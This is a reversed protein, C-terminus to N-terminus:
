EGSALLDEQRLVGALEEYVADITAVDISALQSGAGAVLALEALNRVKRPIGRTLEHLRAAAEPDFVQGDHGAKALSVALYDLTDDLEWSELEIRLESMELVRNGLQSVRVPDAAMVMTVSSPTSCGHHLLRVLHGLVEATAEDADDLLLVTPLQQYRHESFRDSISRWLQFNSDSDRPNRHLQSALQWLFEREDLALLNLSVVHVGARRLQGALVELVLSKGSGSRGLLLGLQRQNEVLFNLRALAEEHTPSNYFYRAGAAGRFPSQELGWHTEYMEVM